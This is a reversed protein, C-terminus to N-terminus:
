HGGGGSRPAMEPERSMSAGMSNPLRGALLQEVEARAIWYDRLAEVYMRGTDIQDRKAILIQVPGTSMANYMLLTEDTIRQRLPLLVDKYYNARERATQLRMVASRATARIRLAMGAYTQKQRRMKAEAQSTEGQGQYFIPIELQIAPGVEWEDDQREVEVGASLGPVAGMAAALNARRAAATFGKSISELDISRELARQELRATNPEDDGPLPLRGATKYRSTKGWLGLTANLQERTTALATEAQATALRAEEYLAQESLLDLDTINGATHLRRALEFSANAAKLVSHRLELIQEDAQYRFFSVRARFALDLAAGAVNLTAEELEADAV